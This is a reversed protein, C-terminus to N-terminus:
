DQLAQKSLCAGKPNKQVPLKQVPMAPMAPQCAPLCAPLLVRPAPASSASARWLDAGPAFASARAGWGLGQWSGRGRHLYLGDQHVDKAADHAAVDDGRADDVGGLLHAPWAAASPLRARTPAASAHGQMAPCAGLQLRM